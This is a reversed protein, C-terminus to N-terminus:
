LIKDKILVIEKLRKEAPMATSFMKWFVKQLWDIWEKDFINYFIEIKKKLEGQTYYEPDKKERLQRFKESIRM